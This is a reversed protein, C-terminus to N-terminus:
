ARHHLPFPEGMAPWRCRRVLSWHHGPLWRPREGGRRLLPRHGPAARTRGTRGVLRADPPGARRAGVVHSDGTLAHEVLIANDRRANLRGWTEYAVRVGPLVAGRELEVAGLDAFVRAGVPDGEHWAGSTTPPRSTTTM